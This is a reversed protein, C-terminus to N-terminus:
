RLRDYSKVLNEDKRIGRIALLIFLISVFPIVARFGPVVKVSFDRFLIFYYCIGSGVLLIELCVALIAAKLQAKRRKYMFITILAIAPVLASLVTFPIIKQTEATSNDAPIIKQGSFTLEARRGDPNSGTLINGTMFLVSLIVALLLYISQVRQIM